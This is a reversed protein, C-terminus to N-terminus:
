EVSQICEPSNHQPSNVIPSVAYWEMSKEPYPKLLSILRGLDPYAPDLWVRQDKRPLIVPMRDHISRMLENAATTIITCSTVVEGEPSKWLDYLGAFGFPRKSKLRIFM